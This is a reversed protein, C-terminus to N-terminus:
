YGFDDGGNGDSGCDDGGNSDSGCDDGGNGHIVGVTSFVMVVVVM